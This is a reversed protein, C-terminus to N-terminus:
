KEIIEQFQTHKAIFYQWVVSGRYVGNLASLPKCGDTRKVRRQLIWLFLNIHAKFIATFFSADGGLLGKWASIADLGL